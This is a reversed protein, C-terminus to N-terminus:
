PFWRGGGKAMDRCFHPEAGRSRRSFRQVGAESLVRGTPGANLRLEGVVSVHAARPGALQRSSGGCSKYESTFAVAAVGLPPGRVPSLATRWENVDEEQSTWGFRQAEGVFRGMVTRVLATVRDTGQAIRGSGYLVSDDGKDLVFDLRQLQKYVFPSSTM